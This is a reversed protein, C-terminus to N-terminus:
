DARRAAHRVEDAELTHHAAFFERGADDLLRRLAMLMVLADATAREDSGHILLSCTTQFLSVLTAHGPDALGANSPGALM